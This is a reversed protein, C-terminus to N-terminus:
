ARRRLEFIASIRRGDWEYELYGSPQCSRIVGPSFVAACTGDEHRVSDYVVGQSGEQWRAAAFRQSAVYSTKSYIDAYERLRSRLDHLSGDIRSVLVRMRLNMPPEQTAFMFKARHYRTEAIATDLSAATYYVPFTGDGFRSRSLHSFAAKVYVSCDAPFRDGERLLKLDHDSQRFRPNTWEELLTVAHRDKTEAVRHFLDERPHRSPIIRWSQKWSVAHIAPTLDM